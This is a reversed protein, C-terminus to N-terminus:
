YDARATSSDVGGLSGALAKQGLFNHPLSPSSPSLEDSVGHLPWGCRVQGRRGACRVVLTDRRNAELVLSVHWQIMWGKWRLGSRTIPQAAGFGCTRKTSLVPLDGARTWHHGASGAVPDRVTIRLDSATPLSSKCQDSREDYSGRGDRPFNEHTSM